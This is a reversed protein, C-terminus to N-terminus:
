RLDWLEAITALPESGQFWAHLRDLLAAAAPPGDWQLTVVDDGAAVAFGWFRCCRQEDVAFRRLAAEETPGAPFGLLLGHGTREIRVLRARLHELLEVREGVEDPTITCAIPATEDFLPIRGPARRAAEGPPAPAAPAAGAPEEAPSV